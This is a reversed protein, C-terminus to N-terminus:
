KPDGFGNEGGSLQSKGGSLVMNWNETDMIKKVSTYANELFKMKGKVYEVSANLMDLRDRAEQYEPDSDVIAQRIDVSSTLGKAKVIAPAKDLLIEAKIEAAEAEARAQELKLKAHINAADLYGRNFTALLEPAKSPTCIAIEEARQEAILVKKMSFSIERLERDGRQVPVISVVLDTPNSMNLYLLLWQPPFTQSFVGIAVM